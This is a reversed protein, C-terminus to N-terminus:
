NIIYNIAKLAGSNTEEHSCATLAIVLDMHARFSIFDNKKSKPALIKLAGQPNIEVNMFINFSNTIQDAKLGYAALNLSLNEHCSHHYLEPNQAVVRFMELSCPPMLLDHRGCSDTEIELMVRCRNSYLKHGVTLFLQDNFDLSRACSLFENKDDLSLCFLDSVQEGFVDIVTLVQNKKLVFSTGSSPPITNM